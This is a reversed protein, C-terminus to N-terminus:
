YPSNGDSFCKGSAPFRNAPQSPMKQITLDEVEVAETQWSPFRYHTLTSRQPPVSDQNWQERSGHRGRPATSGLSTSGDKRSASIIKLPTGNNQSSCHTPAWPM